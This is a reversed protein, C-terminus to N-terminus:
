LTALTHVISSFIYDKAQQEKPLMNFAIICPHEKKEIDKAPGWKWGTAAKEKLWSEHSASPGADPNALHFEVGKLASVKAFEPAQEWPLQSDDGISKCYARNAEHCLKAIEENTLKM